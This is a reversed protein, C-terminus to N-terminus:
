HLWIARPIGKRVQEYQEKLVPESQRKANIEAFSIGFMEQAREDYVQNFAANVALAKNLYDEFRDEDQYVVRVVYNSM